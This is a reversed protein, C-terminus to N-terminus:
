TGGGDRKYDLLKTLVKMPLWDPVSLVGGPKPEVRDFLLDLVSDM